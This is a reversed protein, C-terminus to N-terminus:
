WNLYKYQYEHLWMHRTHNFVQIKSKVKNINVEIYVAVHPPHNRYHVARVSCMDTKVSPEVPCGQEPRVQPQTGRAKQAEADSDSKSRGWM